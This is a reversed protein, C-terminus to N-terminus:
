LSCETKVVAVEVVLKSQNLLYDAYHKFFNNGFVFQMVVTDGVM